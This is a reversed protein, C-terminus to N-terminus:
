DWHNWYNLRQRLANLASYETFKKGGRTLEFTPYLGPYDCSIELMVLISEINDTILDYNEAFHQTEPTQGWEWMRVAHDFGKEIEAALFEPKNEAVSKLIEQANEDTVDGIYGAKKAWANITETSKKM